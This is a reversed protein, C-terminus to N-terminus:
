HVENHINISIRDNNTLYLKAQKLIDNEKRLEIKSIFNALSQLPYLTMVNAIKETTFMKGIADMKGQHLLVLIDFYQMVKQQNIEDMEVPEGNIMYTLKDNRYDLSKHSKDYEIYLATETFTIRGELKISRNLADSFRQESFRYTTAIVSSFSLFILFILKFM